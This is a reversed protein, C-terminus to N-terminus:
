IIIEEQIDIDKEFNLILDINEGYDGNISVIGDNVMVLGNEIQNGESMSELLEYYNGLLEVRVEVKSLEIEGNVIIAYLM